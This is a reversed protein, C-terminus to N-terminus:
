PQGPAGFKVPTTGMIQDEELCPDLIVKIAIALGNDSSATSDPSHLTASCAFIRAAAMSIPTRSSWGHQMTKPTQTQWM